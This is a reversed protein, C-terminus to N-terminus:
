RRTRHDGGGPDRRRPRTSRDNGRHPRSPCPGWGGQRTLPVCPGAAATRPASDPLRGPRHGDQCPRRGLHRNRYGRPRHQRHLGHCTFRHQALDDASARACGRARGVHPCLRNRQWSAPLVGDTREDDARRGHGPRRRERSRSRRGRCDNRRPGAGGIRSDALQGNEKGQDGLAAM